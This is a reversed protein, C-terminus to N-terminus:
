GPQVVALLNRRDIELIRDMRTLVITLAGDVATAGGSLGTGAGRPVVPVGRAAALRVITAVDNTSEPFAVGIPRGPHLYETEDFRYAETDNPETLVHLGPLAAGLEAIFPAPDPADPM